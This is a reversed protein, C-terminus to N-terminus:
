YNLLEHHLEIANKQLIPDVLNLDVRATSPQQFVAAVSDLMGETDIELQECIESLGGQPNSCTQEYSAIIALDRHDFIHENAAIWYAVWYNISKPDWKSIWKNLGPFAIPRHLEGFEYHGIDEMYRRVFPESHHMNIFNSHQQHLSRAHELPDRIPILLKADPFMHKILTLRAINGNNKSIYRGDGTRGPCRLSVIKKMHDSMFTTAEEKLDSAKWLEIQNRTYKEQWFARWLIEEFAEPSDFSVRMGDGHAREKLESKKRFAGSLRDWLVPAMIFPMDRYVHTALTPFRHLAELMLTTGARPLSTIFIPKVVNIGDYSNSFIHKEIDSAALQISTNGFALRHILRDLASYKVEFAL